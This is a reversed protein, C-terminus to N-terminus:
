SPETQFDNMERRPVLQRVKAMIMYVHQMSQQLLKDLEKLDVVGALINVHAYTQQPYLELAM